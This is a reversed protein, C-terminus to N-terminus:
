KDKEYCYDWCTHVIVEKQIQNANRLANTFQCVEQHGTHRIPFIDVHTRGKTKLIIIEM